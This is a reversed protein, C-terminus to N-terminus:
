RFDRGEWRFLSSGEGDDDVFTGGALVSDSTDVKVGQPTPSDSAGGLVVRVFLVLDGAFVVVEFGVGLGFHAFVACSM